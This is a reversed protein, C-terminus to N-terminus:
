NHANLLEKANTLTAKSINNGGLLRAIEDARGSKNLALMKTSTQQGDSQKSVFFQQHGSSAVQPLHTVCIVQTSKGLKRLLEGVSAATPGSIGVDVEDFILTPTTVKGAIIVQIALSIRSLEGGSAVKALAQLPQGPNTSVLFEICDSGFKNPSLDNQYNIDIKFCGHEMSLQHMSSSILTNLTEAASLRSDSLLKTHLQYENLADSILQELAEIRANNSSINNLKSVLDQHLQYLTEPNTHHKRALNLAQSMREEVEILRTPDCETRDQYQRIEVAAEEIQISAEILLESIPALAKDISSLETFQNASQQVFGFANAGEQDYLQLLQQQCASILTQSHNLKKHETEIQEFEGEQLAFEDLEEVQYELLQLQAQQQAHQESLQKFEKKLTHYKGYARNVNQQLDLHGAYEDLLHLQHEPKTLLQHAHQGHISILYQGLSKLQSATVAIGNIYGKSRGNKNVVRRILCETDSILDNDKLFKKAKPLNHIDFQASIQARECKPRVVSSESREGLCLSLADIAISKGAGTEGTITTMGPGWEANLKDVIAFNEIELSILM